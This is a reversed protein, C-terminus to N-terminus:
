EYYEAVLQNLLRVGFASAGKPCLETDKYCWATGAIDLHVWPVNNVFRQLFQAATISGAERGNTSNRMDAIDSDIIKDYYDALPMRWVEEGVTASVTEIRKALEDNNSFLGAKKNGLAIIIAGTLTALDVMFKPKFKDQVYWLVDALVLRGEADTNIVEITQGSLSKVVDGPRQANGDPMNEVLGVAGVVNVKAKRLALTKMLGIVTGAGGMDWKMEEMNSAPKISIGGSDFCVGKGVFAIPKEKSGPKGEWRLIVMQSEKASGQGVGLLSHMGLKHMEPEGLVEVKLGFEKLTECQEALSEPHIINGPESVLNRTLTVGELIPKMAIFAKTAEKADDVYLTLASLSLKDEPKKKTHYKDFSYNRLSAGFAIHAAITAPTFTGYKAIDVWIDATKVGISNLHAAIGGGVKQWDLPHALKDKGLGALIIRDYEVAAPAVLSIVQGKKGSFKGTKFTKSLAGGTKKDLAKGESSLSTEAVFIVLASSISKSLRASFASFTLKM